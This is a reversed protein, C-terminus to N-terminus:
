KCVYMYVLKDTHAYNVVWKKKKKFANVCESTISRKMYLSHTQAVSYSIFIFSDAISFLASFRKWWGGPNDVFVQVERRWESGNVIILYRTLYGYWNIRSVQWVDGNCSMLLFIIPKWSRKWHILCFIGYGPLWLEKELNRAKFIIYLSKKKQM